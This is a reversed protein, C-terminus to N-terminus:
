NTQNNRDRKAAREVFERIMVITQTRGMTPVSEMYLKQWDSVDRMVAEVRRVSTTLGSKTIEIQKEIDSIKLIQANAAEGFCRSKLLQELEARRRKSLVSCADLEGMLSEKSNLQKLETQCKLLTANFINPASDLGRLLENLLDIPFNLKQEAVKRIDSVTASVSQKLRPVANGTDSASESFGVSRTISLTM